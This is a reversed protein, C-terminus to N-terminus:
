VGTPSDIARSRRRRIVISGGVIAVALLPLLLTYPAEPTVAPPTFTWTFGNPDSGSATFTVQANWYDTLVGSTNACAIGTEWVGPSTGSSLLSSLSIVGKTVNAAFALTTPISVIQGTGIATNAPGYYNGSGNFLGGGSSPHTTFTLGTITTGEPVLYSYVHYGDSATDGDCAANAPLTITFPTASGGSALASLTNPDAITAVGNLTSAGATGVGGLTAAAVAM